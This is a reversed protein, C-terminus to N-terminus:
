FHTASQSTSLYRQISEIIVLLAEHIDMKGTLKLAENDASNDPQDPLPGGQGVLSHLHDKIVEVPKQPYRCTDDKDRRFFEYTLEQFRLNLKPFANKYMLQFYSAKFQDLTPTSSATQPVIQAFENVHLIDEETIINKTWYVFIGGKRKYAAVAAVDAHSCCVLSLAIWNFLSIHKQDREDLSSVESRYEEFSLRRQRVKMKARQHYRLFVIAEDMYDRGDDLLPDTEPFKEIEPFPAM